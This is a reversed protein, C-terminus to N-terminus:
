HRLRIAHADSGPRARDTYSERVHITTRPAERPSRRRRPAYGHPANSYERARRLQAGLNPHHPRRRHNRHADLLQARRDEVIEVLRQATHLDDHHQSQLQFPLPHARNGVIRSYARSYPNVASRTLNASAPAITICGPGILRPTSIAGSTASLRDDTIRSWTAFPTATRMPIRYRM